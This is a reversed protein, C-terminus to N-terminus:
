KRNREYLYLGLWSLTMTVLIVGVAQYLVRVTGDAM